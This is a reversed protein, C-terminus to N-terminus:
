MVLAKSRATGGRGGWADAIRLRAGSTKSARVGRSGPYRSGASGAAPFLGCHEMAVRFNIVPGLHDFSLSDTLLSEFLRPFVGVRALTGTIERDTLGFGVESM